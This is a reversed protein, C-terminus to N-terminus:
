SDSKSQLENKWGLMRAQAGHHEAKAKDGKEMWIRSLSTHLHVDEANLALAKEGARVAEDLQRLDFHIEAKALLADFSNPDMHLAEDLKQLATTHEGMTFEFTADDILQRTAQQNM